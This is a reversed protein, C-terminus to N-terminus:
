GPLYTPSTGPWAARAASQRLGMLSSHRHPQYWITHRHKRERSCWCHHTSIPDVATVIIFKGLCKTDIPPSATKSNKVNSLSASHIPPEGEWPSVDVAMRGRPQRYRWDWGWSRIISASLLKGIGHNNGDGSTSVARRKISPYPTTNVVAFDHKGPWRSPRDTRKLLNCVM